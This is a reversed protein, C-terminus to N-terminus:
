VFLADIHHAPGTDTTDILQFASRNPTRIEETWDVGLASYITAVLDNIGMFRNHSWGPDIIRGGDSNSAGIARGGIVGGGAFFAPTVSPYHDRGRASNLNGVTRGFEGMAVILTEDLLTGSGYVGPRASMEDLLFSIGADFARSLGIVGRSGTYIGTHHDWGDLQLNFVRNGKGASIMRLAADCQQLFLETPDNGLRALPPSALLERLDPDTMLGRANKQFKLYDAAEGKQGNDLVQALLAFRDDAGDCCHDLNPLGSGRGLTLGLHELSLFGNRALTNNGSIIVTPLIDVGRRQEAMKFSLVSAFHPIFGILAPNQQHATILHYVARTHVAEVASISRVVSFMGSRQALGPMSGAPWFIDGVMQPGLADPTWSGTKLDFTDVHSPAGGLHVFILNKATGFPAEDAKRRPLTEWAPPKVATMAVSGTMAASLGALFKRRKM